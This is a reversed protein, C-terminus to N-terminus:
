CLIHRVGGYYDAYSLRKERIEVGDERHWDYDLFWVQAHALKEVEIPVFTSSGIVAALRPPGEALSQVSVGWAFNQLLLFIM